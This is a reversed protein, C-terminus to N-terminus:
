LWICEVDPPSQSIMERLGKLCDLTPCHKFDDNGKAPKNDEEEEEKM